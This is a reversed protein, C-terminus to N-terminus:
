WKLEEVTLEVPCHDSGHIDSRIAAATINERISQSVLFYDIRWGINRARSQAMYSWWTYAHTKDPYLHRFSDVFGSCLLETMKGREEATFGPNNKNAKPHTLDIEKHAVNLDGCVIIPKDFNQLFARFDDEWQMRYPLRVLERRSNPTYVNIFYFDQFELTIIRGETDHGPMNYAFSLPEKKSLVLTGSYGKKEAPNWFAYYEPFDFNAQNPQMKIEQLGVIDYGLFNM